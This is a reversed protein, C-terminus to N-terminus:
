STYVTAVYYIFVDAINNVAIMGMQELRYKSDTATLEEEEGESHQQESVESGVKYEEHSNLVLSNVGALKDFSTQVFLVESFVKKILPYNRPSGLDFPHSLVSNKLLNFVQQTLGLYQHLHPSFILASQLTQLTRLWMDVKLDQDM